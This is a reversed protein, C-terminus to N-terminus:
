LFVSDRLSFLEHVFKRGSIVVSPPIAQSLITVLLAHSPSYATQRRVPVERTSLEGQGCGPRGLFMHHYTDRTVNAGSIERCCRAFYERPLLGFM